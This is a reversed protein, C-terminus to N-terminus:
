SNTLDDLKSMFNDMIAIIKSLDFDYILTGDSLFRQRFFDNKIIQITSPSHPNSVQEAFM